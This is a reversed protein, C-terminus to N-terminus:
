GSVLKSFPFLKSVGFVSHFCGVLGGVGVGGIGGMAMLRGVSDFDTLRRDHWGDFCRIVCETDLAGETYIGTAAMRPLLSAAPPHCSCSSSCVLM